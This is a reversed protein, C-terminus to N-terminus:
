MTNEMRCFVGVEKTNVHNCGGGVCVCVCVGKKKAKNLNRQILM